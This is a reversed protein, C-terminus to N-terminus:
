EEIEVGLLTLHEMRESSKKYERPSCGVVSRFAAAFKIPNDYGLMGAIEAMSHETEEIYHIAKHMKYHKVFTYYPKGYIESFCSQFTTQGIGYKQVLQPVSFRRDPHSVVEKHIARVKDYDQQRYYRKQAKEEEPTVMRILLLLELIKLKLYYTEVKPDVQYMENLIHNIEPLSRIFMAGNERRIQWGLFDIQEVAEPFVDKLYAKAPEPDILIEVGAYFGLPFEPNERIVGVLNAEMEGEGLYVQRGNVKCGFRGRRCHNIEIMKKTDENYDAEVAEQSHFNNYVFYVGPMIPHFVMSSKEGNEENRSLITMSPASARDFGKSHLEDIIKM